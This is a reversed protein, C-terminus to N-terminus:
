FKIHIYLGIKEWTKFNEPNEKIDIYIDDYELQSMQNQRVLDYLDGFKYVKGQHSVLLEAEWRLYSVKSFDIIFVSRYFTAARPDTVTLTLVIGDKGTEILSKSVHAPLLASIDDGVLHIDINLSRAEKVASITTAPPIGGANAPTLTCLSLLTVVLSKIYSM